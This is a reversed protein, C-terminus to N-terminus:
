EKDYLTKVINNYKTALMNEGKAKSTHTTKSHSRPLKQNWRATQHM